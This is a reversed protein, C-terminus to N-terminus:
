EIPIDLECALVICAVVIDKKCTRKCLGAVVLLHLYTFWEKIKRNMALKGLLKGDIKNM